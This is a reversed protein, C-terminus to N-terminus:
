ITSREVFKGTKNFLVKQIQADPAQGGAMNSILKNDETQLQDKNSTVMDLNLMSVM